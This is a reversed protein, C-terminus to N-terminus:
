NPFGEGLLRDLKKGESANHELRSQDEMLKSISAMMKGDNEIQTQEFHISNAIDEKQSPTTANSFEELLSQMHKNRKVTTNYFNEQAAYMKLHQDYASQIEPNDSHMDFEDRLEDINHVNNYIDKWDDLAFFHNLNPDNLIKEYNWHGDVMKKYYEGQSKMESLRKRAESMDTAFNKAETSAEKIMETISAIDITPIGTAFAGFPLLLAIVLSLKKVNM